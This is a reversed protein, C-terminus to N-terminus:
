MIIEAYLIKVEYIQVKHLLDGQESFIIGLNRVYALIYVNFVIIIITM